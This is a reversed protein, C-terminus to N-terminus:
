VTRGFTLARHSIPSVCCLGHTGTHAIVALQPQRYPLGLLSNAGVCAFWGSSEREHAAEEGDEHKDHQGELEAPRRRGRIARVFARGIGRVEAVVLVLMVSVATVKLGYHCVLSCASVCLIAFGRAARIQVAALAM